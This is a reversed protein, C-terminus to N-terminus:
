VNKAFLYLAIFGNYAYEWSRCHTEAVQWTDEAEAPRIDITLADM